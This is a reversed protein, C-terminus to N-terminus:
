EPGDDYIDEIRVGLKLLDRLSRRWRPRKYPKGNNLKDDYQNLNGTNKGLKYDKITIGYESLEDADHDDFNEQHLLQNKRSVAGERSVKRNTASTLKSPSLGMHNTRKLKTRAM